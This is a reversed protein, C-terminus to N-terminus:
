PAAHREVVEAIRGALAEAERARTLDTSVTERAEAFARPAAPARREVFVLHQGYASAVPGAWAGPPVVFAAEAFNPGLARAIEAQTADAYALRFPAPAGVSRWPAGDALAGLAAAAASADEGLFVTRLSVTSPADYDGRHADYWARLAAEDPPAAPEALLVARAKQALRRRIVVDDEALGLRLAERALAAEEILAARLGAREAESPLRGAQAAWLAEHRAAAEETLVFRAPEGSPWLAGAAHLLLALGTFQVLPERLLARLRKTRM